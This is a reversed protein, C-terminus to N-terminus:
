PCMGLGRGYHRSFGTLCSFTPRSAPSREGMAVCGGKTMELWGGMRWPSPLPGQGQAGHRELVRRTAARTGAKDGSPVSEEVRRNVLSKWQGSEARECSWLCSNTELARGWAEEPEVERQGGRQEPAFFVTGM